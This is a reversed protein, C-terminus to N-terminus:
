DWVGTEIELASALIDAIPLVHKLAFASFFSLEELHLEMKTKIVVPQQLEMHRFFINLHM